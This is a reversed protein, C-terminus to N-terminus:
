WVVTSSLMQSGDYMLWSVLLFVEPIDTVYQM